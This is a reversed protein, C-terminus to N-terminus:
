FCHAPCQSIHSIHCVQMNILMGSWIRNLAPNMTM